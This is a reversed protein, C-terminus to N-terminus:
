PPLNIQVLCSCYPVTHYPNACMSILPFRLVFLVYLKAGDTSRKGNGGGIESQNIASTEINYQRMIAKELGKIKGIKDRVFDPLTSLSTLFNELYKTDKDKDKGDKSSLEKLLDKGDKKTVTAKTTSDIEM